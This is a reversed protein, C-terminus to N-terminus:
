EETAPADSSPGEPTPEEPARLELVAVTVEVVGAVLAIYLGYRAGVAHGDARPLSAWRIVVLLLGLAAVGAVLVAPKANPSFATGSRRLALLVGAATLLLGGAWATFGASWGDVSLSFSLVDVGWWPLFLSILAIGAFCVVVRDRTSLQKWDFRM